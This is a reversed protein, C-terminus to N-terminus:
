LETFSKFDLLGEGLPHTSSSGCTMHAWLVLGFLLLLSVGNLRVYPVSATSCIFKSIGSSLLSTAVILSAAEDLAQSRSFIIAKQQLDGLREVKEVSPRLRDLEESLKKRSDEASAAVVGLVLLDELIRLNEFWLDKVVLSCKVEFDGKFKSYDCSVIRSKNTLINGIMALNLTYVDYVNALDDLSLSDLKNKLSPRHLGFLVNHSFYSELSSSCKGMCKDEQVRRSGGKPNMSQHVQDYPSDGVVVLKFGTVDQNKPVLSSKGQDNHDIAKSHDVYTSGVNIRQDAPRVFFTPAQGPKKMFNRFSMGMLKIPLLLHQLELLGLPNLPTFHCNFCEFVDLYFTNLPLYLNGIYYLSQYLPICGEPGNLATISASDSAKHQSFSVYCMLSPPKITYRKEHGFGLRQHQVCLVESREDAYLGSLAITLSDALVCCLRNLVSGRAKSFSLYKLSDLLAELTAYPCSRPAESSAKRNASSIMSVGENGVSMADVATVVPLPPCSTTSLGVRVVGKSGVEFVVELLWVYKTVGTCRLHLHQHPFIFPPVVHARTSAKWLYSSISSALYEGMALLEDVPFLSSFFSRTVQLLEPRGRFGWVPLKCGKSGVEFVVELLWVYKTVGTCGVRGAVHIRKVVHVRQVIHIRMDM